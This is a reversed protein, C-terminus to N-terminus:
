ELTINLEENCNKEDAGIIKYNGFWSRNFIRKAEYINEADCSDYFCGNAILEYKM